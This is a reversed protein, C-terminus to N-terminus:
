QAQRAAPRAIKTTGCYKSAPEPEARRCLACFFAYRMEHNGMAFLWGRWCGVRFFAYATVTETSATSAIKMQITIAAIGFVYGRPSGAAYTDGSRGEPLLGVKLKGAVPRAIGPPIFRWRSTSTLLRRLHSHGNDLHRSRSTASTAASSPTTSVACPCRCRKVSISTSRTFMTSGSPRMARAIALEWRIGPGIMSPFSNGRSSECPRSPDAPVTNGRTSPHPEQWKLIM